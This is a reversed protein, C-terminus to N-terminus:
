GSQPLSAEAGPELFRVIKIAVAAAADRGLFGQLSPEIARLVEQRGPQGFRIKALVAAAAHKGLYISLEAVLVRDLPTQTFWTESPSAAEWEAEAYDRMASQLRIRGEVLGPAQPGPEGSSFIEAATEIRTLTRCCRACGELHRAVKQARRPDLEGDMWALLKGRSPHFIFELKKVTLLNMKADRTM